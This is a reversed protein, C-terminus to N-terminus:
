METLDILSVGELSEVRFSEVHVARFTICHEDDASEYYHVKESNLDRADSGDGWDVTGSVDSGTFVPVGFHDGQFYISLVSERALQKVVVRKDLRGKEAYFKITAVRDETTTNESVRFSISKTSGARTDIQTIWSPTKGAPDTIECTYSTNSTVDVTITGAAASLDFGNDSVTLAPPEPITKEKNCSAATLSAALVLIISINKITRTM